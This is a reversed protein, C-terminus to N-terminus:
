QGAGTGGGEVNIHTGDNFGQGSGAGGRGLSNPDPNGLLDEESIRIRPGDGTAGDDPDGPNVRTSGDLLRGPSNGERMLRRWEQCAASGDSPACGGGASPATEPTHLRTFDETRGVPQGNAHGRETNVVHGRADTRTTTSEHAIRGM